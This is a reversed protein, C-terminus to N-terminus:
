GPHAWRLSRHLGPCIPLVCRNPLDPRRGLCHGCNPCSRAVPPAALIRTQVRMPARSWARETRPTRPVIARWHHEWPRLVQLCCPLGASSCRTLIKRVLNARAKGYTASKADSSVASTAGLKNEGSRENDLELPRRSLPSPIALALVQARSANSAAATTMKLWCLEAWVM